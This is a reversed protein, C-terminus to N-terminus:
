SASRSLESSVDVLVDVIVDVIARLAIGLRGGKLCVFVGPIAIQFSYVWLKCCQQRDAGRSSSPVRMVLKKKACLAAQVALMPPVRALLETHYVHIKM